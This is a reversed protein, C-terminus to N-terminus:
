QEFYQMVLANGALLGQLRPERGCKAVETKRSTLLFLTSGRYEEEQLNRIQIVLLAQPHTGQPLAEEVVPHETFEELWEPLDHSRIGMAPDIHENTDETEASDHLQDGLAGSRTSRSRQSAPSPATSSNLGAIDPQFTSNIIRPCRDTCPKGHQM